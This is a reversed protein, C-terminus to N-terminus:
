LKRNRRPALTINARRSSPSSCHNDVSKEILLSRKLRLLNGYHAVDKLIHQLRKAQDIPFILQYLMIALFIM